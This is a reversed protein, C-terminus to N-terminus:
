LLELKAILSEFTNLMITPKASFRKSSSGIGIFKCGIKLATNKDVESDGVYIIDSVTLNNDKLIKAVHDIKSYPSGLVMDFMENWKRMEIIRKLTNEPTASSIFLKIDTKKLENITKSVEEIEPARSIEYECLETYLNSLKSPDVIINNVLKLEKSLTEFIDYRDGSEPTSLIKDLLNGAGAIDKTVSYFSKRKIDNSDVLTGDFDFIVGRIM